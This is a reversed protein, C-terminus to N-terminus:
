PQVINDDSSYITLDDDGIEGGSVDNSRPFMIDSFATTTHFNPVASENHSTIILSRSYFHEPASTDTMQLEHGSLHPDQFQELILTDFIALIGSKILFYMLQVEIWSDSTFIIAHRSKYRRIRREYMGGTAGDYGGDVPGHSITDFGGGLWNDNEEESPSAIHITPTKVKEKDYYSRISMKRPNNSLSYPARTIFLDVAQDYLNYKGDDFSLGFFMQGILSEQKNTRAEYDAVLGKMFNNLIKVLELEPIALAM